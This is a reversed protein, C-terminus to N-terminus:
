GVLNSKTQTRSWEMVRLLSSFSCRRFSPFVSLNHVDSGSKLHFPVSRIGRQVDIPSISRVRTNKLLPRICCPLYPPRNKFKRRLFSVFVLTCSQSGDSYTTSRRVIKLPNFPMSANSLAVLADYDLSGKITYRAVNLLQVTAIFNSAISRYLSRLVWPVISANMFKYNNSM